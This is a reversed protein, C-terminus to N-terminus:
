FSKGGGTLMLRAANLDFGKAKDELDLDTQYARVEEDLKGLEDTTIVNPLAKALTSFATLINQDQILLPTLTSLSSIILNSM